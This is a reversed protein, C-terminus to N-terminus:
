DGRNQNRIRARLRAATDGTLFRHALCAGGVNLIFDDVDFTGSLTVFQTIEIVAVMGTVAWAFRLLDRKSGFRHPFLTPLFYATPMLAALNGFINVAFMHWSISGNALSVFMDGVTYLPILNVCYKMYFALLERNWGTPVFGGRRDFVTLAALFMLYTAFWVWHNVRSPLSRNPKSLGPALRRAGCWMLGCAAMLMIVRGARSLAPGTGPKMRLGAYLMLVAAAGAYAAIGTIIGMYKRTKKDTLHRKMDM